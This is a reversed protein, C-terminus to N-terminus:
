TSMKIEVGFVVHRISILYKKNFLQCFERNLCVYVKINQIIEALAFISVIYRIYNRFYSRHTRRLKRFFFDIHEQPWTKQSLFKPHTKFDIPIITSKHIAIWFSSVYNRFYTLGTILYGLGTIRWAYAFIRRGVDVNKNGCWVNFCWM